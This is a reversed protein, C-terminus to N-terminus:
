TTVTLDPRSQVSQLGNELYGAVNDFGIRALRIASEIEHGLAVIIVIPHKQDLVTGVGTAFQGVLGINISGALHAAAFEASDRTDLIQAGQAKLELVRDLSLPNMERTLAQDLTPREQSNLVADYNFYAPAEPQDATVLQIFAEKTMGIIKCNRKEFESQLGAMYGLETTCVPTFDKPHSFLIAWGNGIWEHFNITGQSTEATFDPAPDNIRLM